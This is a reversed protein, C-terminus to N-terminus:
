PEDMEVGVIGLIGGVSDGNEIGGPLSEREADGMDQGQDHMADASRESHRYTKRNADSWPLTAVIASWSEPAAAHTLHQGAECPRPETLGRTAMREHWRWSALMSQTIPRALM